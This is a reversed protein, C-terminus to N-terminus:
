KRESFIVDGDAIHRTFESGFLERGVGNFPVLFLM